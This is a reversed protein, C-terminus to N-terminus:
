VELSDLDERTLPDKVYEAHLLEVIGPSWSIRNSSLEKVGINYDVSIESLDYGVISGTKNRLAIQFDFYCLLKNFHQVTFNTSHQTNFMVTAVTPTIRSGQLINQMHKRYNAMDVAYQFQVKQIEIIAKADGQIALATTEPNVFLIPTKM